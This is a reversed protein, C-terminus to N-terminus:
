SIVERSKLLRIKFVYPEIREEIFIQDSREIFYRIAKRFLKKAKKISGKRAINNAENAKKLAYVYAYHDHSRYCLRKSKEIPICLHYVKDWDKVNIFHHARVQLQPFEAYTEIGLERLAEKIARAVRMEELSRM